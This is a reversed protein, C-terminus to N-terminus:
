DEEETNWACDVVLRVAMAAVQIAERRIITDRQTNSQRMKVADWLEDVEELLVAYGEHANRFPGYRRSAEAFEDRVRDLVNYVELREFEQVESQDVLKYEPKKSM